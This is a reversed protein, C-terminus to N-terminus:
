DIIGDFSIGTASNIDGVCFNNLTLSANLTTQTSDDIITATGPHNPCTGNENLTAASVINGSGKAAQIISKLNEAFIGLMVTQQVNQSSETTTVGTVLSASSTSSSSGELMTIPFDAANGANVTAAGTAGTYTISPFTPGTNGGGSDNGGGGGCAALLTLFLSLLFTKNIAKKIQQKANMANGRIDMFEM